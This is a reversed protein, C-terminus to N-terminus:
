TPWKDRRELAPRLMYTPIQAIDPHSLDIDEHYMFFIDLVQEVEDETWPQDPLPEDEEDEVEQARGQVVWHKPNVCTTNSCHNELKLDGLPGFVQEYIWRHVLIQHGQHIAIGYARYMSYSFGISADPGSRFKQVRQGEKTRKGQWPMCDVPLDDITIEGNLLDEIAPHSKSGIRRHWTEPKM